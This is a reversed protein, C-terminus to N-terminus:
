KFSCLMTVLYKYLVACNFLCPKQWGHNPWTTLSFAHVYLTYHPLTMMNRSVFCLRSLSSLRRIRRCDCKRRCHPCATGNVAICSRGKLIPHKHNVNALSVSIASIYPSPQGVNGVKGWYQYFYIAGINSLM